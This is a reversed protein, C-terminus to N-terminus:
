NAAKIVQAQDTKLAEYLEPAIRLLNHKQMPELEKWSKGHFEKPLNSATPQKPEEHALAPNPHQLALFGEVFELSKGELGKEQAPTLKKESKADAILKARKADNLEQSTKALEVVAAKGAEIAGLAKEVSDVSLAKFLSSVDGELAKARTETELAKQEVTKSASARLNIETVVEAESATEALGLSKNVLKMTAEEQAAVRPKPNPDSKAVLQRLANLSKQREVAIAQPNIGVPAVSLELLENGSLVFVDQGNREEYRATKSRFGVSVARLSKQLFGQFVQEALENAKEDVFNLTACLQNNEIRIDTAYGIPLTDEPEDAFFNHCYLVVPNLMYRRLDWDQVLVDGELDVADTSAIVPVSRATVDVVGAKVSFAKRILEPM